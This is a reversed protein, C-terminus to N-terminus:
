ARISKLAKVAPSVNVGQAVFPTLEPHSQTIETLANRATMEDQMKIFLCSGSGTLKATGYPQVSDFARNVKPYLMRVLPEFDNHGTQALAPRITSVPTNRTLDPHAFLKPTSVHENPHLVLYWNEDLDVPTLQEGIGEAWATRGLIFVPVDAGLRTGIELLSETSIDLHFLRNLALLTTACDSSGGGIGGGMPLRKNLHISLHFTTECYQELARVAKVILNDEGELEPNDCTLHLGGNKRATFELTDGVDLLQFITQLRHYGDERRGIIHLFLNLKAPAPVTVTGPFSNKM